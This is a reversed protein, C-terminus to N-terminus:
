SVQVTKPEGPFGAFFGYRPVVRFDRNGPQVGAVQFNVGSEGVVGQAVVNWVDGARQQLEYRDAYSGLSCSANVVGGGAATLWLDPPAMPPSQPVQERVQAAFSSDAFTASLLGARQAHLVFHQITESNTVVGLSEESDALYVRLFGVLAGLADADDFAMLRSSVSNILTHAGASYLTLDFNNPRM